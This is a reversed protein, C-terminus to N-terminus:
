VTVVGFLISINIDDLFKLEVPQVLSETCSYRSEESLLISEVM